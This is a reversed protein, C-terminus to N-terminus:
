KSHCGQPSLLTMTWNESLTGRVAQRTGMHEAGRPCRVRLGPPDRPAAGQLLLIPVLGLHTTLDPVELSLEKYVAPCHAFGMLIRLKHKQFTCANRFIRAYDSPACGSNGSGQARFEPAAWLRRRSNLRKDSCSM